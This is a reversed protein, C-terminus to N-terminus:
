APALARDGSRFRGLPTELVLAGPARGSVRLVGGHVRRQHHATSLTALNALDDSGGASRFLVHHVHLHWTCGPVTCRWGDRAFVRARSRGSTGIVRM